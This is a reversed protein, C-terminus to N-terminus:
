LNEVHGDLYLFNRAGDPPTWDRDESEEQDLQLYSAYGVAHFPLFEYLVWLRGSSLPQGTRRSVLVQSRTRGALRLWPYEYSTGEYPVNQYEAVIKKAAADTGSMIANVQATVADAYTGSRLVYYYQDSPCSFVQRANETYPGLVVAISPRIPEAPWRTFLESSPLGAAEPFKAQAGTTKRDLYLTLALGCQKLNSKCLTRRSSERASQIAPVLLGVILGIIAIVVLLEVLTFGRRFARRSDGSGGIRRVM